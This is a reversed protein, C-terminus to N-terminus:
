QTISQGRPTGGGGEEEEELVRGRPGGGGCVSVNLKIKLSKYFYLSRRVHCPM